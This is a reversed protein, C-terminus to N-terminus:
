VEFDPGAGAQNLRSTAPAKVGYHRSKRGEFRVGASPRDAPDLQEGALFVGRGDLVGAALAVARPGAKRMWLGGGFAAFGLVFIALTFALTVQTITWGFAKSLPIRFVSWAYVAGLGIQMVIGAIAIGWRNPVAHGIVPRRDPSTM